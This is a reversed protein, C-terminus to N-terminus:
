ADIEEKWAGAVDALRDPPDVLLRRAVGRVRDRDVDRTIYEVPSKGDVRALFLAPLLHAARSELAAAPEWAVLPLYAAVMARFSDLLAGRVAPVWV